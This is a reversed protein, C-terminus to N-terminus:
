SVEAPGGMLSLMPMLPGIRSFEVLALEERVLPLGDTLAKAEEVSTCNFVFLAGPRDVHSYWQAIKGELYLRATARMEEPMAHMVRERDAGQRITLSVLVGTCPPHTIAYALERPTM